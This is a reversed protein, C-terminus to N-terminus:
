YILEKKKSDSNWASTDLRAILYHIFEKLSDPASNKGKALSDINANEPLPNHEAKM